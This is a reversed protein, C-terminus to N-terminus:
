KELKKNHGFDTNIPRGEKCLPCAKPEYKEFDFETLSILEAGKEKVSVGSEIDEIKIGGRNCIIAVVEIKAGAEKASEIVKKVSYGTNVTDELVAVKKGTLFKDYGRTIKFTDKGEEDKDAKEIFVSNVTVGKYYSLYKAVVHGLVIGGVAPVVVTDIKKDKILDALMMGIEDIFLPDPVIKDKAVYASGHTGSQYVFHGDTLVAKTKAFIEFTRESYIEKKIDQWKIKPLKLYEKVETNFKLVEERAIDTFDEGSSAYIVSRSMNIVVGENKANLGCQIVSKLDGGQAGIGPVLFIIDEGAEARARTMHEPFTAGLVLGCNKNANWIQAVNKVVRMYLPMGSTELDQFEMSGPNSTKALVFFLKDKHLLFTENAEEGLYGHITLSDFGLAWTDTNFDKTDSKEEEIFYTYGENTNGIDGRKADAILFIDPAVKKIYRVTEKMVEMGEPGYKEYFASNLKYACVSDCTADVIEKNFSLMAEFIDESKSTLHTPIKKPDTDLGVCLFLGQAWKTNLKSFNSM